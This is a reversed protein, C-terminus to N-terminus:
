VCRKRCSIFLTTHYCVGLFDSCSLLRTDLIRNMWLSHPGLVRRCKWWQAQRWRTHRGAKVDAHTVDQVDANNVVFMGNEFRFTWRSTKRNKARRKHTLAIRWRVSLLKGFLRSQSFGVSRAQILIFPKGKSGTQQIWWVVNTKPGDWKRKTPSLAQEANTLFRWTIEDCYRTSIFKHTKLPTSELGCFDHIGFEQQANKLHSLRWLSFMEELCIGHLLILPQSGPFYYVVQSPTATIQLAKRILVHVRVHFCVCVRVCVCARVKKRCTSDSPQPTDQSSSSSEHLILVLWWGSIERTYKTIYKGAM